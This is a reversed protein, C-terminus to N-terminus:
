KGTEIFRQRLYQTRIKDAKIKGNIKSFDIKVTSM